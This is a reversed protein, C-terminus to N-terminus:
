NFSWCFRNSAPVTGRNLTSCARQLVLLVPKFRSCNWPEVHQLCVHLQVVLNRLQNGGLVIQSYRLQLQGLREAEIEFPSTTVARRQVYNTVHWVDWAGNFEGVRDLHAFLPSWEQFLRPCIHQVLELLHACRCALIKRIDGGCTAAFPDAIRDIRAKM